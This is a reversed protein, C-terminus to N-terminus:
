EFEGNDDTKFIWIQDTDAGVNYTKAKQSNIIYGGDATPIVTKNYFYTGIEQYLREWLKNGSKDFKYLAADASYLFRYGGTVVLANDTTEAVSYAQTNNDDADYKWIDNGNADIMQLYLHPVERVGLYYGAFVYNGERTQIISEPFVIGWPDYYEKDWLIGGNFTLKFVRFHSNNDQTLALAVLENNYVKIDHFEDRTTPSFTKKWLLNGNQDLKGLLAEAVNGNASDSAVSGAAYISGDASVAVSNIMHWQSSISRQWMLDGNNSIKIVNNFGSVIYGDNNNSVVKIKFDGATYDYRREWIKNGLTDIKVACLKFPPSPWDALEVDGVVIYGGDNAKLMGGCKKSSNNTLLGYDVKRLYKLWYKKTSFDLESATEKSKSDVAVIKVRYSTVEKLNRFTYGLSKYNATKLEDNLYVKYSVPDNDPDVSKTWSISATDWSCSGLSVSVQSPAKNDVNPPSPPDTSNDSPNNKKCSALAFVVFM